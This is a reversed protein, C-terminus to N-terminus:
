HLYWHESKHEKIRQLTTSNKLRSSSQGVYFSRIFNDDVGYLCYIYPDKFERVTNFVSYDDNKLRDFRYLLLSSREHEYKYLITGNYHIVKVKFFEPNRM